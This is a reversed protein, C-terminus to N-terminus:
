LKNYNEKIEGRISVVRTTILNKLLNPIAKNIASQFIDTKATDGRFKSSGKKAINKSIAIAMGLRQKNDRWEFGYKRFGLWEYVGDVLGGSNTRNPARGKDISKYYGVVRKVFRTSNVTINSSDLLSRRTNGSAEVVAFESSQLINKNIDENFTEFVQINENAM